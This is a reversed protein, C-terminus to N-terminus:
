STLNRVSMRQRRGGPHLSARREVPKASVGSYVRDPTERGQELGGALGQCGSRIKLQPIKGCPPLFTLQTHTRPLRPCARGKQELTDRHFECRSLGINQINRHSKLSLHWWPRAQLAPISGSSCSSWALSPHLNRLWNTLAVVEKHNGCITEM